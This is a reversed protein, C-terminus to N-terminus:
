GKPEVNFEVNISAENNSLQFFLGVDLSEDNNNRELKTIEIIDFNDRYSDLVRELENRLLKKNEFVALYDIGKDADMPNEGLWLQLEQLCNYFSYLKHSSNIKEFLGTNGNFHLM